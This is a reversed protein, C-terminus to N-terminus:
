AVDPQLGIARGGLERVGVEFTTRTRLSSKEFLMAVYRGSLATATPAQAGLRRDAKLRAALELGREVNSADLGLISLFDNSVLPRHVTIELLDDMYPKRETTRTSGSTNPASTAPGSRRLPM